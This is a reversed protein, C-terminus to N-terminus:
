CRTLQLHFFHNFDEISSRGDWRKKIDPEDSEDKLGIIIDGGDANAYAVAIKQIQRNNVNFAKRDYFHSEQRESLTRIESRSIEKTKM